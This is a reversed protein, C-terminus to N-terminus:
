GGVLICEKIVIYSDAAQTYIAPRVGDDVIAALYDNTADIIADETNAVVVGNMKLIVRIGTNADSKQVAVIFEYETEATPDVATIQASTYLVTSYTGSSTYAMLAGQSATKVSIYLKNSPYEFFIAVKDWHAKNPTTGSKDQSVVVGVCGHTIGSKMKARIVFRFGSENGVAPIKPSVYNSHHMNVINYVTNEQIKFGNLTNSYMSVAYSEHAIHWQEKELTDYFVGDHFTGTAVLQPKQIFRMVNFGQKTM